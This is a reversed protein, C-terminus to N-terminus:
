IISRWKSLDSSNSEAKIYNNISAASQERKLASLLMEQHLNEDFPLKEGNM